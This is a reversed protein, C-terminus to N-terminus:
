PYNGIFRVHKSQTKLANYFREDGTVFDAGLTEALALYSADYASRQHEQAIKLIREELGKVDREELPIVRLASLIELADRMPFSQSRKLGRTVRSLVNLVEYHTLTPAVLRVQDATAQALLALAQEKYREAPLYFALLVSADLVVHKLKSPASM